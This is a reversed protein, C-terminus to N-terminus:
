HSFSLILGIITLVVGVISFAISAVFRWTRASSQMDGTTQELVRLRKEHDENKTQAAETLTKIDTGFNRMRENLTVLLDHDTQYEALDRPEAM